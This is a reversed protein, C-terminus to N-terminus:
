NPIGARSKPNINIALGKKEFHYHVKTLDSFHRFFSFVLKGWLVQRPQPKPRLFSLGALIVM